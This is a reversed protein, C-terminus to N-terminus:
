IMGLKYNEMIQEFQALCDAASRGKLGYYKKIDTFSIQNARMGKAFLKLYFHHNVIQYWFFDVKKGEATVAPAVAQNNRVKEVAQFFPAKIETTTM